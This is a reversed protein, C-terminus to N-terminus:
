DAATIREEPPQGLSAKELRISPRERLRGKLTSPEKASLLMRPLLLLGREVDQPMMRAIKM